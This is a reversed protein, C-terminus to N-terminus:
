VKGKIIVHRVYGPVASRWPNSIYIKVNLFEQTHTNNVMHLVEGNMAVKYQYDDGIMTQSVDITIWKNLQLPSTPTNYTYKRNGSVASSTHVFVYGNEHHIYIAPIRSGYADLDGSITAHYINYYATTPFLETVMVEVHLSYQKGLKGITAM